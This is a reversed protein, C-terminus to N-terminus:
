FPLPEDFRIRYKKSQKYSAKLYQIEPYKSSSNWLKKIDVDILNFYDLCEYVIKFQKNKSLPIIDAFVSLAAYLRENKKPRGKRSYLKIEDLSEDITNKIQEPTIETDILHEGAYNEIADETLEEEGAYILENYTVGYYNCLWATAGTAGDTFDFDPHSIGARLIDEAEEYPMPVLNLGMSIYLKEIENEIKNKISNLLECELRGGKLSVKKTETKLLFLLQATKLEDQCRDLNQKRITESLIEINAYKIRCLYQYIQEANNEFETKLLIRLFDKKHKEAESTLVELDEPEIEMEPTIEVESVKIIDRNDKPKAHIDQKMAAEFALQAIKNKVEDNM